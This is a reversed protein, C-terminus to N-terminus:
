INLNTTSQISRVLSQLRYLAASKEKANGTWSNLIGKSKEIESPVLNLSQRTRANFASAAANFYAWFYNPEKQQALKYQKYADYYKGQNFLLDGQKMEPESTTPKSVVSNTLDTSEVLSFRDILERMYKSM